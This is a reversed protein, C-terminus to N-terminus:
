VTYQCVLRAVSNLMKKKSGLNAEIRKIIASGIIVGDAFSNINKVQSPKSIGFGVCVAKKTYRKILKVHEKIGATLNKRAGTVGTLSVYYIFGTSKKAIEKMKAPKTTPSALFITDFKQRRSYKIFEAAEETPLDAIIAGDVGAKKADKIFKNLGYALATNYYGMLVIPIQTKVRLRKVLAFIKSININKKLARQSAEQITPGDALPDSFPM